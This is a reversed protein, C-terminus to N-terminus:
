GSFHENFHESFQNVFNKFISNDYRMAWIEYSYLSYDKFGLLGKIENHWMRSGFHEDIIGWLVNLFSLEIIIKFLVPATWVETLLAVLFLCLYM